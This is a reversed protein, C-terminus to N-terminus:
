GCVDPDPDVWDCENIPDPCGYPVEDTCYPPKGNTEVYHKRFRRWMREISEIETPKPEEAAQIAKELWYGECVRNATWFPRELPAGGHLVYAKNLLRALSRFSMGQFDGQPNVFEHLRVIYKMQARRKRSWTYKRNDKGTEKNYEGTLDCCWYCHGTGFRDQERRIRRAQYQRDASNASEWQALGVTLALFFEGAPKSMDVSAGGWNVFHVTIMKDKMWKLTTEFDLRNRWMRDVKDIVLHDGPRLKATLMRGTPRMDFARKFASAAKQELHVGGPLLSDWVDANIKRQLEVYAEIRSAQADPSDHVQKPDSVRGYGYWYFPGNVPKPEQLWHFATM